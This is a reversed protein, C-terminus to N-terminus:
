FLKTIEATSLIHKKGIVYQLSKVAAAHAGNGHLSTCADAVVAVSIKRDFLDMAAKSICVDTYVGCLSIKEIQKNKIHNRLASTLVTYGAHYYKKHCYSQLEKMLAVDSEKQFRKWHLTKEFFSNKENRFCCFIVDESFHAMLKEINPLIKESAKSRFGEQMDIVLLLKKM